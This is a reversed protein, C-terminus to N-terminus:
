RDTVFYMNTIMTVANVCAIQTHSMTPKQYIRKQEQKDSRYLGVFSHLNSKSKVSWQRNLGLRIPLRDIGTLFATEIRTSQVDKHSM